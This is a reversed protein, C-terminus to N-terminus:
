LKGYLIKVTEKNFNKPLITFLKDFEINNLVTFNFSERIGTETNTLLLTKIPWPGNSVTVFVIDGERFEPPIGYKNFLKYYESTKLIAYFTETDINM